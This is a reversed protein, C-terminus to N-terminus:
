RGEQEVKAAEQVMPDIDTAGALRAALDRLEESDSDAIDLASGPTLNHRMDWLGDAIRRRLDETAKAIYLLSEVLPESEQERRGRELLAEVVAQQETVPRATM